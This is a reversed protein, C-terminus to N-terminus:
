PRIKCDGQAPARWRTAGEASLSLLFATLDGRQEASLGLPKLISEGDAHLRDLKLESYHRLVADLTALQGDHMYPATHALNRLSPVKFEGFNRHQADVHRTKLLAAEDGGDSWASLLHYRSERLAQIGGHRGPDVVGPRVFFPLGIDAFEGNSFMAGGHCTSCAAPGIFLRLGRQAALPYRAAAPDGRLLADRFEDFATRASVLTGVFAGIAKAADVMVRQEDRGPARSFAQQYRCALTTDGAIVQRVWAASSAMERADLLPRLAQSWLSDAAGDWGYWREHVANWLSPANRDLLERGASRARGDAFARQPQHCSACSLGAPSLRPEFFLARGLNIAPERGAQANGADLAPPPPWPGHRAISRLEAASFDLVGALPAASAPLPQCLVCLAAAFCPWGRM